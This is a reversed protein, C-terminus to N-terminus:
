DILFALSSNLPHAKQADGLHVRIPWLPRLLSDAPLNAEEPETGQFLYLPSSVKFTPVCIYWLRSSFFRLSMWINGPGDMISRQRQKPHWSGNFRIWCCCLDDSIDCECCFVLGRTRYSSLVHLFNGSSSEQGWILTRTSLICCSQSQKRRPATPSCPSPCLNPLESQTLCRYCMSLPSPCM